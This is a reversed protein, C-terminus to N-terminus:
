VRTWSPNALCNKMVSATHRLLARTAWPPTPYNDLSNGGNNKRPIFEQAKAM